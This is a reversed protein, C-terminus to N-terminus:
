RLAIVNDSTEDDGALDQKDIRSATAWYASLRASLSSPKEALLRAGMDRAVERLLSQRRRCLAEFALLDPEEGLPEAEARALEVLVSLDHDDGLIESLARALAIHPRIAKPWAPAVLILQRWHRQVYKRWDHFAEDEELRYAREFTRRAKRYDTELTAAIVSFGDHELELEAFGQRAERLLKRTQAAGSANLSKQAAACRAEFRARLAACIASCEGAEDYAELKAITELAAQIERMGSLLKAIQKIQAEQRRFDEKRMAPKVLHLLARLRKMAKRAEHVANGNRAKPSFGKLVRDIQDTGVQRVSDTVPQGPNLRYAM